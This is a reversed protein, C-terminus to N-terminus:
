HHTFYTQPDLEHRRLTEEEKTSEGWRTRFYYLYSLGPSSSEGKVSDM